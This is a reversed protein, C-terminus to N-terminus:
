RRTNSQEKIYEAIFDRRMQSEDLVPFQQKLSRRRSLEAGSDAHSEAERQLEAQTESQLEASTADRMPILLPDVDGNPLIAFDIAPGQWRQAKPNPTNPLRVIVQGVGAVINSDRDNEWGLFVGSSSDVLCRFAM